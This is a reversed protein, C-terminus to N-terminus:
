RQACAPCRPLPEETRRVEGAPVGRTEALEERLRWRLRAEPLLGLGLVGEAARRSGAQETDTTVALEFTCWSRARFFSSDMAIASSKKANRSRCSSAQQAAPSSPQQAAPHTQSRRSLSDAAFDLFLATEEAIM